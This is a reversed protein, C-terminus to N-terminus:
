EILLKNLTDEIQQSAEETISYYICDDQGMLYDNVAEHIAEEREHGKQIYYNAINAMGKMEDDTVFLSYEVTWTIEM